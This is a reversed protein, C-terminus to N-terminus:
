GPLKGVLKVKTGSPIDPSVVNRVKVTASRESVHTVEMTAMVEDIADAAARRQPGPARRAEFRDGLAVGDKKGIDLFLVQQPLRLERHDRAILVHGELGDSVSQYQVEGPDTFKEAPLVSQGERITGYVAVVEGV